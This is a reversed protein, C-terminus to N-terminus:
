GMFGLGNNQTACGFLSPIPVLGQAAKQESSDPANSLNRLYEYQEALRGQPSVQTVVSTNYVEQASAGVILISSVSLITIITLITAIIKRTIKNKM